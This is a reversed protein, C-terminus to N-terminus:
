FAGHLDCSLVNSLLSVKTNSLKTLDNQGLSNPKTQLVELKTVRIVVNKYSQLFEFWICVFYHLFSKFLFDLICRTQVM